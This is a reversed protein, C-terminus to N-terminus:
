LLLWEVEITKWVVQTGLAGHVVYHSCVHMEKVCVYPWDLGNCLCMALYVGMCLTGLIAGGKPLPSPLMLVLLFSLFTLCLM